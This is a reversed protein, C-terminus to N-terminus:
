LEKSLQSSIKDALHRFYYSYVEDRAKEKTDHWSGVFTTKDEVKIPIKKIVREIKKDYLYFNIDMVTNVFTLRDYSNYIEYGLNALGLTYIGLVVHSYPDVDEKNEKLESDLSKIEGFVLYRNNTEYLKLAQLSIEEVLYGTKNEMIGNEEFCKGMNEVFYSYTFENTLKENNKIGLFEINKKQTKYIKPPERKFEEPKIPTNACGVMCLLSCMLLFKKM